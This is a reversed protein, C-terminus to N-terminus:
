KENTRCSKDVARQIYKILTPGDVPKTLYCVAGARMVRAEIADQPFATIFIIPLHRGHSRLEDQLEMGNMNPMQVDAIVCSTTDLRLSKLLEAASPFTYALYGYSRVFRSIANRVSGDDDVVCIVPNPTCGHDRDEVLLHRPRVQSDEEVNRASRRNGPATAPPKDGPRPGEQKQGADGDGQAVVESVEHCPAFLMEIKQLPERIEMEGNGAHPLKLVQDIADVLEKPHKIPIVSPAPWRPRWPAIDGATVSALMARRTLNNM